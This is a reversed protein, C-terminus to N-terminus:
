RTAPGAPEGADQMRHVLEEVGDALATLRAAPTGELTATLAARNEDAYRQRARRGKATTAYRVVRADGPDSVRTVLGAAELGALVRSATPQSMDMVEAIRTVAVPGSDAVHQLFRLSTRSLEIGTARMREAHIRRSGVLRVLQALAAEIRDLDDDRVRTLSSSSGNPM